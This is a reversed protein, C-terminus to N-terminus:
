SQMKAIADRVFNRAPMSGLGQLTEDQIQLM